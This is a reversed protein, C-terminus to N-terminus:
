IKLPNVDLIIVEFAIPPDLFSPPCIVYPEFDLSEDKQDGEM